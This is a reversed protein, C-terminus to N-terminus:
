ECEVMERLGGGIIAVDVTLLDTTAVNVRTSYGKVRALSSAERKSMANESFCTDGGADLVRLLILGLGLFSGFSLGDVEGAGERLDFPSGTSAGLLIRLSHVKWVQLLCCLHTFAGGQGALQESQWV